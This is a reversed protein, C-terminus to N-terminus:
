DLMGEYRAVIGAYAPTAKFAKLERDFDEVYATARGRKSFAVYAPTILLPPELIEAQDLAGLKKLEYIATASNEVAADFRGVLLKRLNDEATNAYDLRAWPQLKLQDFLPSVAKDRYTGISHRQMFAQLDGDYRLKSSKRSVLVNKRESLYQKPFIAFARYEPKDLITYILDCKGTEADERTRLWPQYIVQLQWDLRTAIEQLIESAMGGAQNGPLKM